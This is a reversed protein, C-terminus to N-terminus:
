DPSSGFIIKMALIKGNPLLAAKEHSPALQMERVFDGNAYFIILKKRSADSIVIENQENVRLYYPAVIEGPGQGNRGFSSVYKGFSDLKFVFYGSSQHYSWIYINGQSDVDFGAINPIGIKALDPSEFDVVLTKALTLRGPEDRLFYPELHNVIVEVKDEMFRDVQNQKPRCNFFLVTALLILAIKYIKM